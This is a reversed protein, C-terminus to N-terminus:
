LRLNLDNNLLYRYHYFKPFLKGRNTTAIQVTAIFNIGRNTSRQVTAVFHSGGIPPYRRQPLTELLHLSKAMNALRLPALYVVETCVSCVCVLQRWLGWGGGGRSRKEVFLDWRAEFAKVYDLFHLLVEPFKRLLKGSGAQRPAYAVRSGHFWFALYQISVRVPVLDVNVTHM